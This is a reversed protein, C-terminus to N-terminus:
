SSKYILTSDTVPGLLGKTGLRGTFPKQFPPPGCKQSVVCKLCNSRSTELTKDYWSKMGTKLNENGCVPGVVELWTWRLRFGLRWYHLGWASSGQSESWGKSTALDGSRRSVKFPVYFIGSAVDQLQFRYSRVRTTLKM